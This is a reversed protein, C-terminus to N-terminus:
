VLYYYVLVIILLITFIAKKINRTKTIKSKLQFRTKELKDIRATYNFNHKNILEKKDLFDLASLRGSELLFEKEINSLKFKLTSIPKPDIIVIQDSYKRLVEPDSSETWIKFIDSFVSSKKYRYIKDGLYLGIFSNCGKNIILDVPFNNKMGGDLVINGDIKQPTFIYPISMSCRAAFSAISKQSDIEHSDFIQVNKDKRSAFVTTRSKLDRMEVSIPSSLKQALLMELWENFTHAEYFGKKTILNYVTKFINADKFENFDKKGLIEKLEETNYGAGLLIATIAGASTGAYWNFSYYKQLEELAGVYAVGKIGGGKMVLANYQIAPENKFKFINQLLVDKVASCIAQNNYKDKVEKLWQEGKKVLDNLSKCGTRIEQYFYNILEITILLEDKSAEM